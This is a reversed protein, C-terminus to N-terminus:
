AEKEEMKRLVKRKQVADFMSMALEMRREYRQDEFSALQQQRRHRSDWLMEARRLEKLEIELAVMMNRRAQQQEIKMKAEIIRIAQHEQQEIKRLNRTAIAGDKELALKNTLETIRQLELVSPKTMLVASHFTIGLSRLLQRLNIECHGEFHEQTTRSRVEGDHELSAIIPHLVRHIVNTMLLKALGETDLVNPHNVFVNLLQALDDQQIQLRLQVEGQLASGSPGPMVFPIEVDFPATTVFLMRHDTATIGVLDGFYRPFGGGINRLVEQTAVRGIKGDIISVCAENPKLVISQATWTKISDIRILRALIEPQNRWQYKKTM